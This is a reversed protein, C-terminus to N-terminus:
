DYLASHGYYLLLFDRSLFYDVKQVLPQVASDAVLSSSFPNRTLRDWRWAQFQKVTNVEGEVM